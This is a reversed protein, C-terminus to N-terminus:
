IWLRRLHFLDLLIRAAAGAPTASIKIAAPEEARPALEDESRM